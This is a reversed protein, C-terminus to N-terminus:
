WSLQPRQFSTQNAQNQVHEIFLNLTSSLLIHAEFLFITLSYLFLM